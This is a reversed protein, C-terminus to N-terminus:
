QKVFRKVIHSDEYEIQILYVGAQWNSVNLSNSSANITQTQVQRGQSDLVTINIDNEMVTPLDITLVDQSPNPYVKLDKFIMSEKSL